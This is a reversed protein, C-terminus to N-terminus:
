STPCKHNILISLFGAQATLVTAVITAVTGLVLLAVDQLAEARTLPMSVLCLHFLPPLVFALLAVSFAGLFSVVLGFCPVATGVVASTVVLSVRVPLRSGRPGEATATAAGGAGGGAAAGARLPARESPDAAPGHARAELLLLAKEISEALPVMALPYSLLCVVLVLLRVGTALFSAAPLAFLINSPATPYLLAVTEAIAIYLLAASAMSWRVAASFRDPRTMSHQIPFALPPIGFCFSAVGYFEALGGPSTAFAKHSWTSTSTSTMAAPPEAAAAALAGHVILVLFALGLACLGAISTYSLFSFPRLSLPLV